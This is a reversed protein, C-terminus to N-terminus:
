GTSFFIQKAFFRCWFCILVKPSLWILCTGKAPFQHEFIFQKMQYAYLYLRGDEGLSVLYPGWPCPAIAVIKGAHCKYLQVSEKPTDETNLDIIWFGGNGDQAFYTTDRPDPYRKRLCMLMLGPTYFDYTPEIQIVRDDDPPDAQDIKDYWWVKVHGDMAVTTLEGENFSIQVIPGDHCKRRLTRFVELKILGADWVLINGWSCGSVVKEDPMPLVGLIDSFETKGFRGLEGKLKLGTFTRAMKWFKIHAIGCSTLQGPVYPSFKVRFVDNVYSKTRLLIKRKPWNWITILYDPEGGQSVLLLGDSSYDLHSYLRSSGGRLVCNIEMSPWEYVIILPVNGNEAIAVHNFEPHPNAKFPV